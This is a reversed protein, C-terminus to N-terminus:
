PSVLAATAGPARKQAVHLLLLLLLPLIQLKFRVVAGLNYSTFGYVIGWVIVFVGAWQVLPDSLTAMRANMIARALLLLLAANELGAIMGFPNLVEGPLPRFLATFLGRPAFRIMSGIDTFDAGGSLIASGGYWGQTLDSATAILDAATQLRFYDAFAAWAISFAVAALGGFVLRRALSTERQFLFVVLPILLIPGSWIRISASGLIGAAIAVVYRWRRTRSWGVVGFVYVAIGLLQLPDKGLISSWFMISPFFGLLYLIRHDERRMFLVAARYFLYIGLLGLMAFSVKLAHYSNPVASAVLTGIARVADAGSFAALMERASRPDPTNALQFYTYADLSYNWEYALMLVLTVVCKALWLRVLVRRDGDSVPWLLLSAGLLLAWCLGLFYDREIFPQGIWRGFVPLLTVFSAAGVALM